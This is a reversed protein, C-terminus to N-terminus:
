GNKRGVIFYIIPGIMSGFICVVVWVWKPGNTSKSRTIDVLAVILLILQILLLPAILAWPVNAMNM